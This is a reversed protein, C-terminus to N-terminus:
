SNGYLGNLYVELKHRFTKLVHSTYTQTCGVREAIEEQTISFGSDIWEQVIAKKLSSNGLQMFCIDVARRVETIHETILFTEEVNVGNSIVDRLVAGEGVPSDLYLTAKEDAASKTRQTRIHGCLANYITVTAYTSFRTSVDSDYTKAARYLAEYGISLADDDKDLHLRHIQKWVLGLNLRIVADLIDPTRPLRLLRKTENM